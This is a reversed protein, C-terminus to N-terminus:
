FIIIIIKKKKRKARQAVVQYRVLYRIIYLTCIYEFHKTRTQNKRDNKQKMEEFLFFGFFHRLSIQYKASVSIDFQKCENM